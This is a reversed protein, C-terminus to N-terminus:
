LRVEPDVDKMAIGSFQFDVYFTFGVAPAVSNWTVVAACFGGVYFDFENLDWDTVFGTVQPPLLTGTEEPDAEDLDYHMGTAVFPMNIYAIEFQASAPFEVLATGTASTDVVVKFTHGSFAYRAKNERNRELAARQTESM